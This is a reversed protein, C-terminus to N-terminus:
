ALRHILYAVAILGAFGLVIWVWTPIIDPLLNLTNPVSKIITKGLDFFADLVTEEAIGTDQLAWITSYVRGIARRLNFWLEIPVLANDFEPPKVYADLSDAYRNVDTLDRGIDIIATQHSIDPSFYSLNKTASQTDAMVIAVVKKADGITRVQNLNKELKATRESRVSM